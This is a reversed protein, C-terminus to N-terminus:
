FPLIRLLVIAFLRFGAALLLLMCISDSIKADDMRFRLLVQEGHMFGCLKSFESHGPLQIVLKQPDTCRLDLGNFENVSLASFSWWFPSIVKLWMLVDPIHREEMAYPTFLIFPSIVCPALITAMKKEKVASGVILGLSQGNFALCVMVLAFIWFQEWTAAFGIMPYVMAAFVFSVLATNPIDVLTKAVFYDIVGYVNNQREMMYHAREESFSLVVNMANGFIQTIIMFYIAGLRNQIGDQDNELRFFTMGILLALVITQIVRAINLLPIRSQTLTGRYTLVVVRYIHLFASTYFSCLMSKPSKKIDEDSSKQEDDEKDQQQSKELAWLGSPNEFAEAIDNVRREDSKNNIQLLDLFTEAPNCHDPVSFGISSFFDVAKDGPACYVLRGQSLLLLHDFTQFLKYNPQHITAVVTCSTSSVLNKINEIMKFSSSSDLGSTPEDLFLIKPATIIEVAIGTRRREGGSIGFSIGDGIRRNSCETLNLMEIVETARKQKQLAPLDHPLRLCCSFYISEAPTLSTLLVCSQPVYGCSFYDSRLKTVNETSDSQVARIKEAGNLYVKGKVDIKTLKRNALVQILTTKGAGSPGMIASFKGKPFRGSVNNLLRSVHEERGCPLCNKGTVASINQFCLEM